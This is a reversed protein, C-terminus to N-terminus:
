NKKVDYLTAMQLNYKKGYALSGDHILSEKVAQSVENLANTVSCDLMMQVFSKSWEEDKGQSEYLPVYVDFIQKSLTTLENDVTTMMAKAADQKLTGEKAMKEMTALLVVHTGYAEFVEKTTTGTTHSDALRGVNLGDETTITVAKAEVATPATTVNTTACSMLMMALAFSMLIIKKKM